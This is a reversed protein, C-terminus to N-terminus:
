IYDARELYQFAVWGPLIPLWFTTLRFLFVAPVATTNPMGAAILGAILAAELAGIGGPTPAVTAIAAGVLYVAGVQAFGLSDGFAAISFFLAFIYGISVLTSGGFLLGVKAPSRLTRGLGDFSRRVVPFLKGTIQGRVTPIAFGIGALVGVVALGYLLVAPDPLSISGFASSGAWVVFLTLMLAHMALGAVTNLGVGSVAVAGDVGAKQLFRTNLAMGGIGAPALLSAFSSGLQTVLTPLSPIRNPVSGAVAIAAGVYTLGSMLVVLPFWAWNADQIEDIIRNM